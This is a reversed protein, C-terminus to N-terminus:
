NSNFSDASKKIEDRGNTKTMMADKMAIAAELIALGTKDNLSRLTAEAEHITANSTKALKVALEAADVGGKAASIIGNVGVGLVTGVDVGPKNDNFTNAGAGKEKPEETKKPAVGEEGGRGKIKNMYENVSKEPDGKGEPAPQGQDLIGSGGKKEPFLQYEVVPDKKGMGFTGEKGADVVVKKYEPEGKARQLANVQGINYEDIVGNNSDIIKAQAVDLKAIYDRQMEAQYETMGTTGAGLVKLRAANFEEETKFVGEKKMQELTRLSAERETPKDGKSRNYNLEEKRADYEKQRWEEALKDQASQRADNKTDRGQAYEREPAAMDHQYQALTKQRAMAAEERRATIREEYEREELEKRQQAAEINGKEVSGLLGAAAGKWNFGM